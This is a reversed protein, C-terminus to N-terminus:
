EPISFDDHYNVSAFEIVGDPRIWYHLRPAAPSSVKLAARWAVAGDSDRKRQADEGGKGERFPHPRLAGLEPARGAAIWACARAVREAPIEVDDLGSLFRPGLVFPRLPLERRDATTTDQLWAEFLRGLFVDEPSSEAPPKPVDAGKPKTSPLERLRLKASELAEALAVVKASREALAERLEAVARESRALQEELLDGRVDAAGGSRSEDTGRARYADRLRDLALSGYVGHREYILPHDLPHSDRALGPWWIRAAGGFVGLEKSLLEALLFTLSGTPICVIEPEEGVASRVEAPTLAPERESPRSTVAIVPITRGPDLLREVLVRLAGEDTITM